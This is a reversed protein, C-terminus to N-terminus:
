EKINNVRTVKPGALLYQSAKIVEGAHIKCIVESVTKITKKPSNGCYRIEYQDKPRTAQNVKYVIESAM